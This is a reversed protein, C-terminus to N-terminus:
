HANHVPEPNPDATQHEVHRVKWLGYVASLLLFLLTFTILFLGDLEKCGDIVIIPMMAALNAAISAVLSKTYHFVYGSGALYVPWTLARMLWPYGARNGGSAIEIVISTFAYWLCLALMVMCCKLAKESM